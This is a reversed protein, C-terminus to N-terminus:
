KMYVPEKQIDKIDPIYYGDIILVITKYGLKENHEKEKYYMTGYKGFKVSFSYLAYKKNKSTDLVKGDELRKILLKDFNSNATFAKAISQNTLKPMLHKPSCKTKLVDAAEHITAISDNAIFLLIDYKSLNQQTSDVPSETSIYYMESSPINYTKTVYKMYDEKSDFTDQSFGKTICLTCCIIFYALPTIKHLLKIM